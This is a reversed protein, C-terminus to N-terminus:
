KSVGKYKSIKEDAHIIAAVMKCFDYESINLRTFDDQIHIDYKGDKRTSKNLEVIYTNEGINIKGLNRIKEGM